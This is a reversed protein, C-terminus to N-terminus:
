ERWRLTKVLELADRVLFEQVPAISDPLTHSNFYLVGRLYHRTSDTLYFQLPTAANGTLSYLIGYVKDEPNSVPNEFIEQAKVTHKYAMTRSDKQLDKINFSSGVPKYTLHLTANFPLFDINLWCPEANDSSDSVVRAYGPVSFTFPCSEGYPVYAKEPLDIRFYGRPKPMYSEGCSFLLVACLIFPMIKGKM